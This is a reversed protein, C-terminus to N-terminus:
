MIEQFKLMLQPLENDVGANVCAGLIQAAATAQITTLQKMEMDFAVCVSDDTQDSVSLEM